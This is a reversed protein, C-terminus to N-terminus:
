DNKENKGLLQNKGFNFIPGIISNTHVPYDFPARIVRNWQNKWRIKHSKWEQFRFVRFKLNFNLSLGKDFNSSVQHTFEESM